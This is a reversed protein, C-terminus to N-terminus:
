IAYDEAVARPAVFLSGRYAGLATRFAVSLWIAALAMVLLTGFIAFPAFPIVHSLKLTAVSYVGLPFTYGWWGLNFPVHNRFYRLTVLVAIAMWWLGYGWLLIAGLLAAGSFANAVAGLGHASLVAPSVDSFVLLGLAGTGIPGISLWSSAAMSAEPLKHLAMRLFLLVLVSMAIPVSCAWMVLSVTWVTLQLGPDALHPILLGGSVAAVESAVLPLLWVATMKDITHAQRTFMAFPVALGCAFSLAVDVWWLAQAIDVAIQGFRPLGFILFGNVITALGMPICGFFMSMVPHHLLRSAEEFHLLFRAILVVAFLCFLLINAGWLGEGLVRLVPASPFQSLAISLIGTGMTAAFWNPTFQRVFAPTQSRSFSQPIQPVSHDPM